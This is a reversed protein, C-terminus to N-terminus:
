ESEPITTLTIKRTLVPGKNEQTKKEEKLRYFCFECLHEKLEETMGLSELVRRLSRPRELYAFADSSPKEEHDYLIFKTQAHFRKLVEVDSDTISYPMDGETSIFRYTCKRTGYSFDPTLYFESYHKEEKNGNLFDLIAGIWVQNEFITNYVEQIIQTVQGYEIESVPTSILEKFNRFQNMSINMEGKHTQQINNSAIFRKVYESSCSLRKAIELHKIEKKSNKVYREIRSDLKQTKEKSISIYKDKLDYRYFLKNYIEREQESLKDYTGNIYSFLIKLIKDEEINYAAGVFDIIHGGQCCGRCVFLGENEIITLPFDKGLSRHVFCKNICFKNNPRCQVEYEIGNLELYSLYLGLMSIHKSIYILEDYSVKEYDYDFVRPHEMSLKIDLFNRETIM